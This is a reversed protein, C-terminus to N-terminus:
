DTFAGSARVWGRRYGPETWVEAVLGGELCEASIASISRKIAQGNLHAARACADEDEDEAARFHCIHETMAGDASVGHPCAAHAPVFPRSSILGTWMETTHDPWHIRIERPEPGILHRLEVCAEAATDVDSGREQVQRDTWWCMVWWGRDDWRVSAAGVPPAPHWMGAGDLTGLDVGGLISVHVEDIRDVSTMLAEAAGRPDWRCGGDPRWEGDHDSVAANWAHLDSMWELYGKIM